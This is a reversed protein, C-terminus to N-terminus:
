RRLPIQKRSVLASLFFNDLQYNHPEMIHANKKQRFRPPRTLPKKLFPETRTGNRPGNCLPPLFPVFRCFFAGRFYEGGGGGGRRRGIKPVHCSQGRRSPLASSSVLTHTGLRRIKAKLEFLTKCDKRQHVNHPEAVPLAAARVSSPSFLFM